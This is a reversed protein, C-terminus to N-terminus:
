CGREFGTEKGRGMGGTGRLPQRAARGSGPQGQGPPTATGVGEEGDGVAGIPSATLGNSRRGGRSDSPAGREKEAACPARGRGGGQWEWSAPTEGQPADGRQAGALTQPRQDQPIPM